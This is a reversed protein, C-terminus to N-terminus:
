AARKTRRKSSDIQIIASKESAGFNSEIVDKQYVHIENGNGRLFYGANGLINRYILIGQYNEAKEGSIDVLTVNKGVIHKLDMM